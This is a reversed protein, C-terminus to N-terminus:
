SLSSSEGDSIEMMKRGRRIIAHLKAHDSNTLLLLNNIDNNKRNGDIHHVVEGEELYRGLYKEMVLQHEYVRKRSAKPHDPAYITIYGEHDHRGGKWNPNNAPSKKLFDTNSRRPIAYKIFYKRMGSSSIGFEAGISDISRGKQYESSIYSKFDEESMGHKTKDSLRKNHNTSIGRENLIKRVTIVSKAGVIECMDELTRGDEIYAKRLEETSLECTIKRSSM